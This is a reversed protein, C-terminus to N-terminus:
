EFLLTRIMLDSALGDSRIRAREALDTKLHQFGSAGEIQNLTVTRMYALLDQHIKRVIEDDPTASFVVSLEMRVWTESPAAINTTIPELPIIARAPGGRNKIGTQTEDAPADRGPVISSPEPMPTRALSDHKLYAGTFWGGGIALLTMAVLVGSQVLLSPSKDPASQDETNAM